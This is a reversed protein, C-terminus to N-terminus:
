IRVLRTKRDSLDFSTALLSLGDVIRQPTLKVRASLVGPDTTLVPQRTKRTVVMGVESGSGDKLVSSYITNDGPYTKSGSEHYVATYQATLSEVVCQLVVTSRGALTLSGVYDGINAFWDAVFSFKTLEWLATPVDAPRLGLRAQLDDVSEFLVTARYERTWALDHSLSIAGVMSSAVTETWQESGSDRTVARSTRRDPKTPESLTKVYGQIDYVLPMVGYRILLNLNAFEVLFDKYTLQGKEYRRRLVRFPETRKLLTNVAGQLLAFTERAEGLTVLLQATPASASSRASALAQGALSVNWGPLKSTPFALRGFRFGIPDSVEFGINASQQWTGSTRVWIWSSPFLKAGSFTYVTREMPSNILEGANKRSSFRPTVVDTMAETKGPAYQGNYSSCSDGANWLKQCNTASLGAVSGRTRTRTTM